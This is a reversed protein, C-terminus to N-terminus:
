CSIPFSRSSSASVAAATRRRACACNTGPIRLARAMVPHVSFPGQFNATADYGGDASIIPSSWSANSRRSPTARIPVTLSVRADAAAFAGDPDGYVFRRAGLANTGAGTMFLPAGAALAALADVTAPLPEYEIDVLEAADEARYRDDALVVAVPEGFYRM